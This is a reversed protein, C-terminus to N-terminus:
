RSLLGPLMRVIWADSKRIASFIPWQPRAILAAKITGADADYIAVIESNCSLARLMAMTDANDHISSVLRSKQASQTGEAPKTQPSTTQM